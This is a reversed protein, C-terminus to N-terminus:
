KENNIIEHCIQHSSSLYDNQQKKKKHNRKQVNIKQRQRGRLTGKINTVNGYTPNNDIKCTIARFVSSNHVIM